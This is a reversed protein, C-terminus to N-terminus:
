SAMRAIGEMYDLDEEQDVAVAGEQVLLVEEQAVAVAVEMGEQALVLVEQVLRVEEQALAVAMEAELGM